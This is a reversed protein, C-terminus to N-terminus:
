WEMLNDKVLHYHGREKLSLTKNETKMESSRNAANAVFETDRRSTFM